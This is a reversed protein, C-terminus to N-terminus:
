AAALLGHQHARELKRVRLGTSVLMGGLVLAFAGIWLGLVIAGALPAVLLAIGFIVSLVGELALLWDNTHRRRMRIAEAIELVGTALAWAGIVVLLVYATISPWAIAILGAVISVVGHAIAPERPVGRSAMALSLVGDVLAYAGFVLVFSVFTLSPVFLSVIGLVLAAIGRLVITWWRLRTTRM